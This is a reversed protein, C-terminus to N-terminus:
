HVSNTLPNRDVVGIGLFASCQMSASCHQPRQNKWRKQENQPQKKLKRSHADKNPSIDKRLTKQLGSHWHLHCCEEAHTIWWWGHNFQKGQKRKADIEYWSQASYIFSGKKNRNVTKNKVKEKVNKRPCRCFPSDLVFLDKENTSPSVITFNILVRKALWTSTTM